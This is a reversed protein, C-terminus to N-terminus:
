SVDAYPIAATITGSTSIGTLGTLTVSAYKSAFVFDFKAFGDGSVTTSSGLVDTDGLTDLDAREATIWQDIADCVVSRIMKSTTLFNSTDTITFRVVNGTPNSKTVTFSGIPYAAGM